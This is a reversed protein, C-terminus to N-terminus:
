LFVAKECRLMNGIEVVHDLFMQEAPPVLSLLKNIYKNTLIKKKKKKKTSAPWTQHKEVTISIGKHFPM